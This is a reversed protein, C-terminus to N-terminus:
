IATNGHNDVKRLIETIFASVIGELETMALELRIVDDEYLRTEATMERKMIQNLIERNKSIENALIQTSILPNSTPDIGTARDHVLQKLPIGIQDAEFCLHQYEELTFSPRIEKM